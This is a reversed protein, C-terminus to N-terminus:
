EETKELTRRGLRVDEMLDNMSDDLHDFLYNKGGVQKELYHNRINQRMLEVEELLGAASMRTAGAGFIIIQELADSTAVTVHHKKGIERVTK